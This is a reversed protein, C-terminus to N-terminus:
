SEDEEVEVKLVGQKGLDFLMQGVIGELHDMDQWTVWALYANVALGILILIDIVVKYEV